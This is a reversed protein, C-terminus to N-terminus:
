SLSAYGWINLFLAVKRLIWSFVKLLLMWFAFILVVYPDKFFNYQSSVITTCGNIFLFVSLTYLGVVFFLQSSISYSYTGRLKTEL